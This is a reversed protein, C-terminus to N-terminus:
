VPYFYTVNVNQSGSVAVLSFDQMDMTAELGFSFGKSMGPFIAASKNGDIRIEVADTNTLEAYFVASLALTEGGAINVPTGTAVFPGLARPILDSGLATVPGTVGIVTGPSIELRGEADVEVQLLANTDRHRGAIATGSM